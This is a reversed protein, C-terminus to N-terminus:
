HGEPKSLQIDLFGTLVFPARPKRGATLVM